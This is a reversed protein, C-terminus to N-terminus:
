RTTLTGTLFSPLSLKRGEQSYINSTEGWLNSVNWPYGLSSPSGEQMERRFLFIFM